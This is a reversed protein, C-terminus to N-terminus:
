HELSTAQLFLSSLLSLCSVLAFLQLTEVRDDLQPEDGMTRRKFAKDDLHPSPSKSIVDSHRNRFVVPCNQSQM